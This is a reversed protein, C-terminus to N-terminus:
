WKQLANDEIPVATLVRASVPGYKKTSIIDVHYAEGENLNVQTKNNLYTTAVVIDVLLVYSPFFCTFDIIEASFSM